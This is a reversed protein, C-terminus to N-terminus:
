DVLLELDPIAQIVQLTFGRVFSYKSSHFQEAQIAKLKNRPVNSERM